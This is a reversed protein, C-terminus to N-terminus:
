RPRKPHTRDYDQIIQQIRLMLDAKVTAPVLSRGKPTVEQIIEDIDLPDDLPKKRVIEAAYARLQDRWGCDILRQRFYETLMDKAGSRALTREIVTDYIPNDEDLWTDVYEDPEVPTDDLISTIPNDPENNHTDRDDEDNANAANDSSNSSLESTKQAFNYAPPVVKAPRTPKSASPVFHINHPLSM